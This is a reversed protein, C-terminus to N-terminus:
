PTSFTNLATLLGSARHKELRDCLTTFQDLRDLFLKFGPSNGLHNVQRLYAVMEKQCKLTLEEKEITRELGKKVVDLTHSWEERMKIIADVSQHSKGLWFAERVEIVNIKDLIRGMEQVASIFSLLKDGDIAPEQDSM